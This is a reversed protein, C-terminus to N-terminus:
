PVIPNGSESASVQEIRQDSRCKQYNTKIFSPIDRQSVYNETRHANKIGIM